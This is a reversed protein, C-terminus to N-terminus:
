ERLKQVLLASQLHHVAHTVGQGVACVDALGIEVSQQAACQVNESLVVCM